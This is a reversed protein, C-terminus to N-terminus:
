AGVSGTHASLGLSSAWCILPQASAFYCRGYGGRIPGRDFRDDCHSRAPHSGDVRDRAPVVPDGVIHVQRLLADLAREIIAAPDGSQIQHALLDQLQKLKDRTGQDLTVQLKYRGPALPM